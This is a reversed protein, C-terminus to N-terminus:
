AEELLQKAVSEVAIAVHFARAGDLEAIDNGGYRRTKALAFWKEPESVFKSYFVEEVIADIEARHELYFDQFQQCTILDHLSGGYVGNKAVDQITSIQRKKLFNIIAM